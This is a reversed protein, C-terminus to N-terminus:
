IHQKYVIWILKLTNIIQDNSSIDSSSDKIASHCLPSGNWFYGFVPTEDIIFSQDKVSNQFMNPKIDVFTFVKCTFHARMLDSIHYRNLCFMTIWTPFSFLFFKRNVGTINEKYYLVKHVLMQLIMVHTYETWKLKPTYYM